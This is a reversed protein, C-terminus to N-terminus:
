FAYQLIVYYIRKKLVKKENMFYKPLHKLENMYGTIRKAHLKKDIFSISM